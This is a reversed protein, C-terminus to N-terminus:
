KEFNITVFEQLYNIYVQAKELTGMHGTNNIICLTSNPINQAITESASAKTMIDNKGGIVLAPVKISPLTSLTDLKLMGLTGKAVTDVRSTLMLRTTFNLENRTQNGRFGSVYAAVHLSGNLFSLLNNFQWIPWTYAQIYLAPKILINQLKMFFDGFLATKIPNIYSTNLLAIGDINDKSFEPYEKYLQQIIMGGISHGVLIIKQNQPITSVIDKLDTAYKTLSYDDNAPQKSKGLGPEDWFMLNYKGGFAKRFYYWIQATTSWGHTFVLTINSSIVPYKQVFLEKTDTNQRLRERAINKGTVGSLIFPMFIWGTFNLITLLMSFISIATLNSNLNCDGQCWQYVLYYNLGILGIAILNAITNLFISFPLM